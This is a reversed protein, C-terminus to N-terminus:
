DWSIPIKIHLHWRLSIYVIFSYGSPIRENNLAKIFFQDELEMNIKNYNFLIQFDYKM